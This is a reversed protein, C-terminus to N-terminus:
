WVHHHRGRRFIVLLLRLWAPQLMRLRDGTFAKTWIRVVLVIALWHEGSLLPGGALAFLRRMTRLMRLVTSCSTPTVSAPLSTYLNTLAM